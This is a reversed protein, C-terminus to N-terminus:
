KGASREGGESGGAGTRRKRMGHKGGVGMAEAQLKTSSESISATSGTALNSTRDSSESKETGKRECGIPPNVKCIKPFVNIFNSFM